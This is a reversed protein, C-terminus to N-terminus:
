SFASVLSSAPKWQWAPGTARDGTRKRHRQPRFRLKASAPCCPTLASLKPSCPPVLALLSVGQSALPSAAEQGPAADRQDCGCQGDQDSAGDKKQEQM